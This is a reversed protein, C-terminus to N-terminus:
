PCFAGLSQKLATAHVDVPSLQHTTLYGSVASALDLRCTSSARVPATTVLEEILQKQIEDLQPRITTALDKAQHDPAKGVRHWASLLSSQVVKNAEIQARFFRSVIAPDLGETKGESVASAIVHEERPPDEVATGTQWKAFAVEQALSLRRASTEVLPQLRVVATQARGDCTSAMAMVAIMGIPAFNLHM